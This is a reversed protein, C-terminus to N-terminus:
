LAFYIISPKSPSIFKRVCRVTGTTYVVKPTIVQGREDVAKKLNFAALTMVISIWLSSDAIHQGPCVRNASTFFSRCLHKTLLFSTGCHMRGFAATRVVVHFCKGDAMGLSRALRTRNGGRRFFVNRVFTMRIVISM